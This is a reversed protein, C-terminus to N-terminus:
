PESESAAGQAHRSKAVRRFTTELGWATKAWPKARRWGLKRMAVETEDSGIVNLECLMYHEGPAFVRPAGEKYVQVRM